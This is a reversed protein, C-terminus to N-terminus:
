ERQRARGWQITVRQGEIVSEHMHFGPHNAFSCGEKNCAFAQGGLKLVAACNDIRKAPKKQTAMGELGEAGFSLGPVGVQREIKEIRAM